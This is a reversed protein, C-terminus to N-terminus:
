SKWFPSLLPVSKM